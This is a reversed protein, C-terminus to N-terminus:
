LYNRRIYRMAFIPSLLLVVFAVVLAIGNDIGINSTLFDTLPQWGKWLLLVIVLGAVGWAIERNM